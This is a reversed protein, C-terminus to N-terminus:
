MCLLATLAPCPSLGVVRLKLAWSHASSHQLHHHVLVGGGGGVNHTAGIKVYRADTKQVTLVGAWLAVWWGILRCQNTLWSEVEHLDSFPLFRGRMKSSKAKHRSCLKGQKKEVKQKERMRWDDQESMRECIEVTLFVHWSQSTIGVRETWLTWMTQDCWLIEEVNWQTRINYFLAM